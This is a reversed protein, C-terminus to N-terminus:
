CHAIRIATVKSIDKWHRWSCNRKFQMPFYLAFYLPGFFAERKISLSSTTAIVARTSNKTSFQIIAVQDHCLAEREYQAAVIAMYPFIHKESIQKKGWFFLWSNNNNLFTFCITYIEESWSRSAWRFLKILFIQVSLHSIFQLVVM